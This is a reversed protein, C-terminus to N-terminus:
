SSTYQALGEPVPIRWTQPHPGSGMLYIFSGTSCFGTVDGSSVSLPLKAAFAGGQDLDLIDISKGGSRLVGLYRETFSRMGDPLVDSGQTGADSLMGDKADMVDLPVLDHGKAGVQLRATRGHTTGVSTCGRRLSSISEGKEQQQLQTCSPDQLLFSAQENVLRSSSGTAATGLWSEAVDFSQSGQDKFSCSSLRGGNKHLVLAECSSLSDKSCVLATDQLSEGLLGPCPKVEKFDVPLASPTPPVRLSASSSSSSKADVKGHSSVDAVFTSLGDTVMLHNGRADCSLGKPVIGWYPWSVTVPEPKVTHFRKGSNEGGLYQLLDAAHHPGKQPHHFELPDEYSLGMAVMSPFSAKMICGVGAFIWSLSTLLAMNRFIRWPVEGPKEGPPWGNPPMFTVPDWFDPFTMAFDPEPGIEVFPNLVGFVGRGHFSCNDKRQAFALRKTAHGRRGFDQPPRSALSELISDMAQRTSQECAPTYYSNHLAKGADTLTPEFIPQFEGACHSPVHALVRWGSMSPSRRPSFILGAGQLLSDAAGTRSSISGGLAGESGQTAVAQTQQHWRPSALKHMAVTFASVASSRSLSRRGARQLPEEDDEHSSVPGSSEQGGGTPYLGTPLLPRLELLAECAPSVIVRTYATVTQGWRHRATRHQRVDELERSLAGAWVRGAGPLRAALERALALVSRGFSDCTRYARKLKGSWGQSKMRLAQSIKSIEPRVRELAECAEVAEREALREARTLLEALRAAAELKMTEARETLEALESSNALLDQLLLGSPRTAAAEGQSQQEAATQSGPVNAVGPSEAAAALYLLGKGLTALTGLANLATPGGPLFRVTAAALAVPRQLARDCRGVVAVATSEIVESGSHVLRMAAADSGPVLRCAVGLAVSRGADAARLGLSVTASAARIELSVVSGAVGVAGGAARLWLGGSWVVLSGGPFWRIAAKLDEVPNAIRRKAQVEATEEESVTSLHRQLEGIGQSEPAQPTSLQQAQSNAEQVDLQRRHHLLPDYRRLTGLCTYGTPTSHTLLKAIQPHLLWLFPFMSLGFITRAWFFNEALRWHSGEPWAGTALKVAAVDRLSLLLFIGLSGVFVVLNYKMMSHIRGGRHADGGNEAQHSAPDAASNRCYPLSRPLVCFCVAWVLVEQYLDLAVSIAGVSSGPAGGSSCTNARACLYYAFMGSYLRGVGDTFIATSKLALIFQVIQHEDPPGPICLCLLLVTYFIARVLVFPSLALLLVCIDIPEHLYMQFISKDCPWYHYLFFARFQAARRALRRFAGGCSRRPRQLEQYDLILVLEGRQTGSLVECRYVLHSAEASEPAASSSSAAGSSNRGNRAPSTIDKLPLSVYGLRTYPSSWSAIGLQGFTAGPLAVGASKSAWYAECTPTPVLVTCPCSIEPRLWWCRYCAAQLM